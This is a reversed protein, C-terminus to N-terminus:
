EEKFPASRIVWCADGDLACQSHNNGNSNDPFPPQSIVHTISAVCAIAFVTVCVTQVVALLFQLKHHEEHLSLNAQKARELEVQYALVACEPVSNALLREVHQRVEGREEM